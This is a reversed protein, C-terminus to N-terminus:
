DEATIRWKATLRTPEITQTVLVLDALKLIQELHEVRKLAEPQPFDPKRAVDNAVASIMAQKHNTLFKRAAALNLYFLTTPQNSFNLFHKPFAAPDESSSLGTRPFVRKLANPSSGLLLYRGAAAFAPQVTPPLDHLGQIWTIPAASQANHRVVAPSKNDDLTQLVAAGTWLWRLSRQLADAVPSAQQRPERIQLAAVFDLPLDASDPNQPGETPHPALFMGVDPGLQPLLDSFVDSGGTLTDSLAQVRGIATPDESQLTQLALQGFQGYNFRGCAVLLAGPPVLEPFRCPGQVSEWWRRLERPWRDPAVEVVLSAELSEGLSLALSATQLGGLVHKAADLLPLAEPDEAEVRPRVQGLWVHWPRPDAVARIVAQRPLKEWSTVLLQPLGRGPAPGVPGLEGDLLAQMVKQDDTLAVFRGRAALYETEAHGGRIVQRQDYKRGSHQLSSLNKLEHEQRSLQNIGEALQQAFQEDTTELLVLWSGGWERRLERQRSGPTTATLGDPRQPWLALIIRGDLVTKRLQLHDVRLQRSAMRSFLDVQPWTTRHWQAVPPYALWRDFLESQSWRPVAQRLGGVETYLGAGAPLLRHLSSLRGGTSATNSVQSTVQGSTQSALARSSQPASSVGALVALCVFSVLLRGSM